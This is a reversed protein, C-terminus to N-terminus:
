RRASWVGFIFCALLASFVFVLWWDQTGVFGLIPIISAGASLLFVNGLTEQREELREIQGLYGKLQEMTLVVEMEERHASSPHKQTQSTM